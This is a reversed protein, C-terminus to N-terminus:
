NMKIKSRIVADCDDRSGFSSLADNHPNPKPDLHSSPGDDHARRAESVWGTRLQPSCPLSAVTLWGGHALGHETIAWRAHGTHPLCIIPGSSKIENFDLRFLISLCEIM